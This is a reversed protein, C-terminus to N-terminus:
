GTGGLTPRNCVPTTKEECSDVQRWWLRGLGCILRGPGCLLLEAHVTGVPTPKCQVNYQVLMRPVRKLLLSDHDDRSLRVQNACFNAMDM